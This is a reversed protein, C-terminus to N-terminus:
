EKLQWKSGSLHQPVVHWLSQRCWIFAGENDDHHAFSPHSCKEWGKSVFGVALETSRTGPLPPSISLDVMVGASDIGYLQQRGSGMRFIRLVEHASIPFKADTFSGFAATPSPPAASLPNYQKLGDDSLIFVGNRGDYEMQRLAAGPGLDAVRYAPVDPAARYLTGQVGNANAFVLYVGGCGDPALGILTYPPLRMEQRGNDRAVHLLKGKASFAATFAGGQLDGVVMPSLRHETFWALNRPMHSGEVVHGWPREEARHRWDVGYLGWDGSKDYNAVLVPSTVAHAMGASYTNAYLQPYPTWGMPSRKATSQATWSQQSVLRFKGPLCDSIYYVRDDSQFYLDIANPFHPWALLDSRNVARALRRGAAGCQESMNRLVGGVRISHADRAICESQELSKLDRRLRADLGMCMALNGQTFNAVLDDLKYHLTQDARLAGAYFQDHSDDTFAFGEGETLAAQYQRLTTALAETLDAIMMTPESFSYLQDQTALHWANFLSMIFNRFVLAAQWPSGVRKKLCEQIFRVLIEKTYVNNTPQMYDRALTASKKYCKKTRKWQEGRNRSGESAANKADQECTLRRSDVWRRKEAGLVTADFTERLYDRMEEMTDQMHKLSTEISAFHKDMVQKIEELMKLEKEEVPLPKPGFISFVAGFISLAGGIVGSAPPPMMMAMTGGLDTLFQGTKAVSPNDLFDKGDGIIKITSDIADKPSPGAPPKDKEAVKAVGDALRQEDGPTVLAACGLILIFVSSVRVM